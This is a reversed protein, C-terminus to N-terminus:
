VRHRLSILAANRYIEFVEADEIKRFELDFLSLLMSCFRDVNNERVIHLSSHSAPRFDMKRVGVLREILRPKRVTGITSTYFIAGSSKARWISIRLIDNLYIPAVAYYGDFVLDANQTDYLIESEVAKM